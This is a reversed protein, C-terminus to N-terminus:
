EEKAVVVYVQVAREAGIASEMQQRASVTERILEGLVVDGMAFGLAPLTAAGDSLQGVLKDYRGGGAIARLKGARDFVEFVIGTYYALGRVIRVDTRVFDALGRTRLGDNVERLRDNEGGEALIKTVPAALAGLKQATQEPSERESKDIVGLVEQWKDEEIGED